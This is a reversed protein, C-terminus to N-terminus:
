PTVTVGEWEKSAAEVAKQFAPNECMKLGLHQGLVFGGWIDTPYHKKLVARHMGHGLAELTLERRKAPMVRMLVAAQLSARSTHGSPYADDGSKDPRQRPYFDKPKLSKLDALAGELLGCTKPCIDKWQKGRVPSGDSNKRSPDLVTLLDYPTDEITEESWARLHGGDPIDVTLQTLASEFRLANADTTPEPILDHIEKVTITIYNGKLVTEPSPPAEEALAPLGRGPLEHSIARCGADVLLVAALPLSLALPFVVRNRLDRITM